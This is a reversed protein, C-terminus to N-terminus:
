RLLKNTFVLGLAKGWFRAGVFGASVSKTKNKFIFVSFPKLTLRKTKNQLYVNAAITQHIIHHYIKFNSPDGM